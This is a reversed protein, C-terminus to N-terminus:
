SLLCGVLDMRETSSLAILPLGTAASGSQVGLRTKDGVVQNYSLLHAEEMHGHARVGKGRSPGSHPMLQAEVMCFIAIGCPRRGVAQFTDVQRGSPECWSQKMLSFYVHNNM